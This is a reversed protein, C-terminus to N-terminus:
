TQGRDVDVRACRAYVAVIRRPLAANKLHSMRECVRTTIIARFSNTPWQEIRGKRTTNPFSNKLAMEVRSAAGKQTCM